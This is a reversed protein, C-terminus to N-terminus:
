ENEREREREALKCVTCGQLSHITCAVRHVVERRIYVEVGEPSVWLKVVNNTHYAAYPVRAYLSMNFVFQRNKTSVHTKMIRIAVDIAADLNSFIGHSMEHDYWDYVVFVLSEGGHERLKKKLARAEARLTRKTKARTPPM